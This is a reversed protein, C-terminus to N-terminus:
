QGVFQQWGGIEMVEFVKGLDAGKDQRLTVCESFLNNANISFQAKRINANSRIHQNISKLIQRAQSCSSGM